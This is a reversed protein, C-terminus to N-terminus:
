LYGGRPTPVPRVKQRLLDEIVARLQEVSVPKQLFVDAQTGQLWFGDSLEEGRTVGTVIVVSTSKLDSHSKIKETLELGDMRALSLETLVVDPRRSLALKWAEEGDKASLVEHKDSLAAMWESAVCESPEVILLCSSAM